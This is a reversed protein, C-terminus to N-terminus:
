GLDLSHLEDVKEQVASAAARLGALEDDTLDLEVIEKM